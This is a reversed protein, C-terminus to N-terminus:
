GRPKGGRIETIKWSNGIMELRYIVPQGKANPAKVLAAGSGMYVFETGLPKTDSGALDSFRYDVIGAMTTINYGVWKGKESFPKMDKTGLLADTTQQDGNKGATLFRSVTRAPESPDWGHLRFYLGIQEQYWAAVVVVIVVVLAASYFRVSSRKKPVRGAVEAM